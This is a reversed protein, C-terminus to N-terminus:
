TTLPKIWFLATQEEEKEWAVAYGLSVFKERWWSHPQVTLHLVEGIIEGMDDPVTSIQFFCSDCAELINCLTRDVLDPPIHEMVDACFGLHAYLPLGNGSLNAQVFEFHRADKDRSHEVFDVLILQCYTLAYIAKAGKGSGCGFDAIRTRRTPKCVEVFTQAVRQGPSFFGYAPHRWAAEYKEQETFPNRWLTQLYGDGHVNLEAGDEQLAIAREKFTEAQMKMTFSCVFERDRHRVIMCPDGDNIAQHLVHGRDGRHSSDMGFIEQRRYGMAHVLVLATNGVTAASGILCYDRGEPDFGEQEDVLLDGHTSHWLIASPCIDFVSPDCQSALLYTKAPGVLDKTQPQADMLVQYHPTIGNDELWRAAGNLAFIVAGEFYLSRITEIEDEISPGSGCIVAIEDHPEERKVWQLPRKSNTLVNKLITEEDTNCTINLDLILPQSCGPNQHEYIMPYM